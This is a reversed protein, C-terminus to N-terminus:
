QTNTRAASQAHVHSVVEVVARALVDEAAAAVTTAGPPIPRGTLQPSELILAAAEHENPTL